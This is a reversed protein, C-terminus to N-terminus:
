RFRESLNRAAMPPHRPRPSKCIKKKDRAEDYNCVRARQEWRNEVTLLRRTIEVVVVVVVVVPRRALSAIRGIGLRLEPYAANIFDGYNAAVIVGSIPHRSDERHPYSFRHIRATSRSVRENFTLPTHIAQFVGSLRSNECPIQKDGSPVNKQPKKLFDQRQVIIAPKKGASMPVYFTTLDYRRRTKLTM